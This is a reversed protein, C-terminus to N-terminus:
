PDTVPEDVPEETDTDTGTGTGSTEGSRELEEIKRQLADREAEARNRAEEAAKRDAVAAALAEEAVARAARARELEQEAQDRAEIAQDRAAIARDRAEDALRWREEADSASGEARLRAEEAERKAHEARERQAEAERAFAQADEGRRRAKIARAEADAAARAADEAARAKEAAELKAATAISALEANRRRQELNAAELRANELAQNSASLQLALRDREYRENQARVGLLVIVVALVALVLGALSAALARHRRVWRVLRGARSYRHSFVLEGTLYQKLARLLEDATFRDEPKREIARAIIGSLEADGPAAPPIPDARELWRGFRAVRAEHAATDPAKGWDFPTEGAVVEYLTIGFSYVDYSPDAPMGLTQELSVYPPTGASITGERGATPLRDFSADPRAGVDKALGWDILTAEGREGILINNPTVDRHVIGHEHAYALAEAISILSSLLDLRERTRRHGDQELAELENLKQALSVGEVRELVCFPTGSSARGLEHITVIAPHQLRALVRSEAEVREALVGEYEPPVVVDERPAKLIVKRRLRRDEGEYVVAMGGRALPTAPWEFADETVLTPAARRRVKGSEDM